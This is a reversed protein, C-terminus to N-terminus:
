DTHEVEWEEDEWDSDDNWEDDWKWEDRGEKKMEIKINGEEIRVKLVVEREEEWDKLIVTIEQEVKTKDIWEGDKFEAVMWEPLWELLDEPKLEEESIEIEEKVKVFITEGDGDSVFLWPNWHIDFASRGAPSDAVGWNLPSNTGTQISPADDLRLGLVESMYRKLDDCRALLQQSIAIDRENNTRVADDYQRQAYERKMRLAEQPPLWEALIGASMLPLLPQVVESLWKNTADILENFMTTFWDNSLKNVAEADLDNLNIGKDKLYADVKALRESMSSIISSHDKSIACLWNYWRVMVTALVVTSIKKALWSPWYEEVLQDHVAQDAAVLPSPSWVEYASVAWNIAAAPIRAIIPKSIFEDLLTYKFPDSALTIGYNYAGVGTFASAGLEFVTKIAFERDSMVRRAIGNEDREYIWLALGASADMGDFRNGWEEEWWWLVRKGLWDVLLDWTVQVVGNWVKNWLYFMAWAAAPWAVPLTATSAIVWLALWWIAWLVGQVSWSTIGAWFAKLGDVISELPTDRIIKETENYDWDLNIWCFNPPRNKKPLWSKKRLEVFKRVASLRYGEVKRVASTGAAVIGADIEGDGSDRKWAFESMQSSATNRAQNINQTMKKMESLFDIYDKPHLCNPLSLYGIFESNYFNKSAEYIKCFCDYSQSTQRGNRMKQLTGDKEFQAMKAKSLITISKTWRGNGHSLNSFMPRLNQPLDIKSWALYGDVEKQRKNEAEIRANEAKIRKNEEDVKRIAENYNDLTTKIYTNHDVDVFRRIKNKYKPNSFIKYITDRTKKQADKGTYSSLETKLWLDFLIHNNNDELVYKIKQDLTMVSEKVEVRRASRGRWSTVWRSKTANVEQLKRIASELLDNEKVISDLNKYCTAFLNPKQGYGIKYEKHLFLHRFIIQQFNYVVCGINEPSKNKVDEAAPLYKWINEKTIKTVDDCSKIDTILNVRNEETLKSEKSVGLIELSKLPDGMDRSLSEKIEKDRKELEFRGNIRDINWIWKDVCDQLIQTEAETLTRNDKLIEDALRVTIRNVIESDLRETNKYEQLWQKDESSLESLALLRNCTKLNERDIKEKIIAQMGEAKWSDKYRWLWGLEEVTLDEKNLLQYCKELNLRIEVRDAIESDLEWIKSDSAITNNYEELWQYDERNLRSNLDISLIWKCKELDQKRKWDAKIEKAWPLSDFWEENQDQESQTEWDWGETWKKKKDKKKGAIDSIVNQYWNWKSWDVVTQIIDRWVGADEKHFHKLYFFLIRWKNLDITESELIRECIRWVVEEFQNLAETKTEFHQKMLEWLEKVRKTNKQDELFNIIEDDALIDDKNANIKDIQKGFKDIIKDDPTRKEEIAM